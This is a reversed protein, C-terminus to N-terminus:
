SSFVSAKPMRVPCYDGTKDPAVPTTLTMSIRTVRPEFVLSCLPVAGEWGKGTGIDARAVCAHIGHDSGRHKSTPPLQKM